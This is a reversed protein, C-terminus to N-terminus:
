SSRREPQTAPATLPVPATGPSGFGRATLFARGGGTTVYTLFAEAEARNAARSVIEASYRIPRHWSADATAVVKVKGGSQQADTAYVIGVDVEGREVYDLVQRVNSGYVIRDKLSDLLDLHKLAQEAYEGAPVTKPQGISLKKVQPSALARFGDVSLKSDAPVILVLSNTAVVRRTAPDTLKMQEAQDMQSDSAAIFVDVPAGDRIQALLQGSGGFNLQVHRGIEKEYARAADTFADKLSIAASITPDGGLCFQCFSGLWVLGLFPAVLPLRVM